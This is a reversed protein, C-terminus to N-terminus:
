KTQYSVTWSGSGQYRHVFDDYVVDSDGYWPDGVSVHEVGGSVSRGRVAVIHGGGGAWAINVAVPANKAMEAGIQVSTLANNQRQNFHGVTQLPVDPWNGQNCPSTQGAAVICDNRGFVTNALKGQTLTSAPEYYKTVSVTTADWCWMTQEQPQMVFNLKQDAMNLSFKESAGATFQANARGGGTSTTSTVGTGDLRLYVNPFAASEFSYSGDSNTHLKYSEYPGAGYQANVTGGGASTTTTVGRGDLRLYVNPFATSEFSYSGDANAHVKFRSNSDATFQANVVGGGNDSASAVGTGNLRVFVNSFATSGITVPTNGLTALDALAVSM